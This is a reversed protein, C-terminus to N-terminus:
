INENFPFQTKFDSYIKKFYTKNEENMETPEFLSYNGHSLINIMRSFLQEDPDDDFKKICDGFKDFGHFAATKELLNRLMNFHYTYLKGEPSVAKNLEKILAVHHFFPTDKLDKLKWVYKIQKTVDEQELKEKFLYFKSANNLENYIVNYFLGHHTSIITHLDNTKTKILSALHNAVLVANDDDLSSIPDDIYIYKVWQYAEAKDIAMQAVALFFCWKFINEEGRSIKIDKKWETTKVDEDYYMRKFTIYNVIIDNGVSDKKEVDLMISFDFDSYRSLVKRIRTEMENADLGDFFHSERRFMLVREEDNDLDNDWYFLDETYANYYLTDGVGNKKGINKFAVSLSTKGVGNHAFIVTNKKESGRLDQALEILTSYSDKM